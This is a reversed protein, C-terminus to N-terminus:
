SAPCMVLVSFASDAETSGPGFFSVYLVDGGDDPDIGVNPTGIASFGGTSNQMKTVQPYCSQIDRNFTVNYEGTALRTVSSVGSSRTVNGNEDVVALLLTPVSPAEPLSLYDALNSPSIRVEGKTSKCKRKSVVTDKTENVCLNLRKSQASLNVSLILFIALTFVFLRIFIM